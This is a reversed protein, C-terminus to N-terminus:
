RGSSAGYSAARRAQEFAEPDFRDPGAIGPPFRLDVRLERVTASPSPQAAAELLLCTQAAADWFRWADPEAAVLGDLREASADLVVVRHAAIERSAAFAAAELARARMAVRALHERDSAAWRNGFADRLDAARASAAATAPDAVAVSLLRAAAVSWPQWSPMGPTPNRFTGGAGKAVREPSLARHCAYCDFEAFEPWHTVAPEDHVADSEEVADSAAAAREARTALLGAVAALM